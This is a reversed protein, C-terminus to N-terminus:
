GLQQELWAELRLVSEIGGEGVRLARMGAGIAGQVDAIPDDGVFVVSSRPLNWNAIGLQFIREDPKRFGVEGSIIIPDFLDAIELSALKARQTAGTGNTILGLPYARVLRVLLERIGPELRVHATLGTRFRDMRQEHNGEWGFVQSLHELLKAKDGRGRADLQAISDRALTIGSRRAEAELWSWFAIERSHLTEDLDLLIGRIEPM